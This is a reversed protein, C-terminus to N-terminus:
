WLDVTFFCVCAAGRGRKVSVPPICRSAWARACLCEAWQFSELNADMNNYWNVRQLRKGPSEAINEWM